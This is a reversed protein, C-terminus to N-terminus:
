QIEARDSVWCQAFHDYVHGEPVLWLSIGGNGEFFEEANVEELASLPVTVRSAPIPPSEDEAEEEDDDLPGSWAGEYPQFVEYHELLVHGANTSPAICFPAETASDEADESGGALKETLQQGQICACYQQVKAESLGFHQAAASIDSKGAYLAVEQRFADSGARAKSAKLGKKCGLYELLFSGAIWGICACGLWMLAQGLEQCFLSDDVGTIM